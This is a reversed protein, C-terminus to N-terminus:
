RPAPAASPRATLRQRRRGLARSLAAPSGYGAAGAARQLGDGRAVHREAIALRLEALYHGPTCGMQDRFASAFATRSMGAREALRVLTWGEAPREHMAVIARALRPDALARLVGRGLGPRAIVHRLLAILLIGGARELLAGRGCRAQALEARILGLLHRLDDGCDSLTLVLPEAFADLVQGGAPGDFRLEACLLSPLPNGTRALHGAARDATAVVAPAELMQEGGMGRWRVRGELVLFLKLGAHGGAPPCPWDGAMPGATLIHIHPSLGDVIAGLRDLQPM